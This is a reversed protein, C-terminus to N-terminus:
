GSSRSAGCVSCERYEVGRERWASIPGHGGHEACWEVDVTLGRNDYEISMRGDQGCWLWV